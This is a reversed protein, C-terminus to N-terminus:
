SQAIAAIVGDKRKSGINSGFYYAMVAAWATGLSGLMVLLAEGGGDKPTGHMLLFSLVGFFGVTVGIALIAPVLDRVEMERKRASDRDEAAIRELDIDLAKMDKAFQADIERVRVLQEPTMDTLAAQVEAETADPKGLLKDGLVKVATGALPGGFAAALAPAVTRLADKWDFSM